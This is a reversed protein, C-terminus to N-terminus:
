PCGASFVSLFESVDFFNFQGDGTLDAGADGASFLSLFASVDFFNLEGFPEALDAASCASPSDSPKVTIITPISSGGFGDTLFPGMAVGTTADYADVRSLPFIMSTLLRDYNDFVLGNVKLSTDGPIFNGLFAGTTGDLEAVGGATGRAVFINGNPGWTFDQPQVSGPVTGFDGILTFFGDSVDYELIKNFGGSLVMLNGNPAFHIGNPGGMVGDNPTVSKVEWTTGDYRTVNAQLFNGVYLDGDPGFTLGKAITFNGNEVIIVDQIFLGTQGDYEKIRWNTFGGGHWSIFLNGNPAWTMGMIQGALIPVDGNSFVFNGVREGTEGDFQIIVQSAFNPIIEYTGVSYIDGPAGLPGASALTGLAGLAIGAFLTRISKKLGTTKERTSM